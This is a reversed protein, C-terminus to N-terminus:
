RSPGGNSSGRAAGHSGAEAESEAPGLRGSREGEARRKSWPARLLVVGYDTARYKWLDSGTEVITFSLAQEYLALM